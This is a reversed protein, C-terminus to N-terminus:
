RTLARVVDRRFHEFDPTALGVVKAEDDWRRLRVAAQAHPGRRFEEAEAKSFAGGQLELSQKSAPSLAEHYGPECACLYRKAPVHLRIPEVVEPPFHRSALWQAGMDEHHADVGDDACNEPLGYLLHGVDHLLAATILYSDAGEREAAAAAQLAHESQSVAEGLYADHGRRHFLDFILDVLPEALSAPVQTSM